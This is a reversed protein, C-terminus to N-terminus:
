SISITTKLAIFLVFPSAWLGLSIDSLGQFTSFGSQVFLSKMQTNKGVLQTSVPSIDRVVDGEKM